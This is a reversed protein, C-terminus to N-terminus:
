NYEWVAAAIAMIVTLAILGLFIGVVSKKKM